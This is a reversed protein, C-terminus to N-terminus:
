LKRLAVFPCSKASFVFCSVQAGVTKNKKFVLCVHLRGARAYTSKWDVQVDPTLSQPLRKKQRIIYVVRQHMSWTWRSITPKLSKEKGKTDSEWCLRRRTSSLSAHLAAHPLNVHLWSIIIIHLLRSACDKGHFPRLKNIGWHCGFNGSCASVTATAIVATLVILKVIGIFFFESCYNWSNVSFFM